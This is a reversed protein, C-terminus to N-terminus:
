HESLLMSAHSGAMGKKSIFCVSWCLLMSAYSRSMGKKSIFCVSWCGSRGVSTCAMFPLNNLKMNWHPRGEQILFYYWKINSLEGGYLSKSLLTLSHRCMAFRIGGSIIVSRGVLLCVPDYPLKVDLFSCLSLDRCDSSWIPPLPTRKWWIHPVAGITILM